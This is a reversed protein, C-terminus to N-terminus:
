SIWGTGLASYLFGMVAVFAAVGGLFVLLREM